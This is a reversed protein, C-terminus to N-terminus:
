ISKLGVNWTKNGVVGDTTLSHAKQFTKTAQETKEGFDGDPTVGIIIQWVKVAKGTSGKKITKMDYDGDNVKGWTAFFKEPTGYRLRLMLSGSGWDPLQFHPKDKISKWSGGWELGVSQGIKGVKDFFGDKDYYPGKSDNRCIDFAVGWQHMSQYSSGKANTVIAGPKSRGQAYLADQEEKTRLCETIRVKYGEKECKALFKEIKKQLKPHLQSQDRM